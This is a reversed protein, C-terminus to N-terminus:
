IRIWVICKREVGNLIKLTVTLIYVANLADLEVWDFPAAQCALRRQIHLSEETRADLQLMM